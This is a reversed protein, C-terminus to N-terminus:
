DIADIIMKKSLLEGLKALALPHLGANKRARTANARRVSKFLMIEEPDLPPLHVPHEPCTPKGPPTWKEFRWNTKKRWDINSYKKMLTTINKHHQLLCATVKRERLNIM